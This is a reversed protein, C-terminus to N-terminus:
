YQTHVSFKCTLSRLLTTKLNSVLSIQWDKFAGMLIIGQDIDRDRDLERDRDRETEIYKTAIILYTFICSFSTNM